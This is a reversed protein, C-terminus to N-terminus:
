VIIDNIRQKARRMTKSLYITSLVLSFCEAIPFAFWVLELRGTLSLLWASPLLVVLQRCVSVILSYVPKGIAQCVSGAIICFGAFIYHTGIIRLAPVGIELMEKSANFFSLLVDPILEFALLGIMMILVASAISLTITKKVRDYKRAGYNYAIIPVMGNNLGFIPMFVFSQLKFYSGFVATATTTFAILIKNMTFTMVSGISQMIISPLGIKYIEKAIDKDWRILRTTIHIEKNCKINFAIAVLAAVIQGSVTAIAAGLVELRPMGLLGFILIPDLIINIVAGFLQAIMSHTTKGTSQLLKEFCFQSCIGISCGLCVSAYDTGYDVIQQVDTQALFFPRSLFVGILTFVVSSCIFLFVGTNAIKNAKEYQKAGLSRSLMANMGVSTGGCVAIMLQQLPFALSVANLADEGLQSVFISDVVNYFAQVLMSIMMPTAMSALLRGIPMTGMKNEQPPINKIEAM